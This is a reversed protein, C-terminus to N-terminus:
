GAKEKKNLSGIVEISLRTTRSIKQMGTREQFLMRAM